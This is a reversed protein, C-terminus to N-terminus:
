HSKFSIKFSKIVTKATLQSIELFNGDLILNGPSNVVRISDFSMTVITKFNM